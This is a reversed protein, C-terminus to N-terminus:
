WAPRCRCQAPPCRCRRPLVAGTPKGGNAKARKAEAAAQAAMWADVDDPAVDMLRLAGDM